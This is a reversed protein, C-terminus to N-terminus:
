SIGSKMRANVGANIAPLKLMNTMAELWVIGYMSKAGQAKTSNMIAICASSSFSGKSTGSASLSNTPPNSVSYVPALNAKRWKVRSTCITNPDAKTTSNNRPPGYPGTNKPNGSNQY